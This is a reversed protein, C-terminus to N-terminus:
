VLSGTCTVHDVDGFSDIDPSDQSFAMLASTALCYECIGFVCRYKLNTTCSSCSRRSTSAALSAYELAPTVPSMYKIATPAVCSPWALVALWTASMAM